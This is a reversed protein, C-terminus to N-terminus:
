AIGSVVFGVPNGSGTQWIGFYIRKGTIELLGYRPYICTGVWSARIGNSDYFSYRLIYIIPVYTFIVFGILMPALMVVAQVSDSNIKKKGKM